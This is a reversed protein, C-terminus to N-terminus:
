PQVTFRRMPTECATSWVCVEGSHDGSAFTRRDPALAFSEVCDRHGFFTLVVRRDSYQLQRVLGDLSGTLLGFDTPLLVQVGRGADAYEYNLKGDSADWQQVAQGRGVSLASSARPPFAAALVAVEHGSYTALVDGSTSDFIRATRDRSASVFRAGDPSYAVTQVWDAHQKWVRTQKGGATDFSRITRDGAGALLQKGDPSFAVSLATEPLDCLIRSQFENAPDILWVAGWQSPSGGAVAVLNRKPHWAIATVREPLGGIRRMLAGSEVDWLTIEFYGAVALRAGDPSFALATVPVPRAYHEPAPLLLTERVLEALPRGPAGGDNVAGEKIWREVLAVEHKPLADARQPMRDNADSEVLLQYIESKDAHGAVLPPLESEGAKALREFSDLRYGGKASEESHCAVCRRQLLPAIEKRFSVPRVPAAEEAFASV